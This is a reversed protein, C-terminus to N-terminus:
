PKTDDLRQSATDGADSGPASIAAQQWDARAGAADGDEYKMNGRELLADPSGPQLQLAREIDARAEAKRGLAHRASARLVFLDARTTYVGLAATLDADAGKWDHNLARAQARDTLIDPDNISYSLAHTFSVAANDGKGALLWANGAQDMIQARMVVDGAAPERGIDDLRAAAEPYRKLGVLALAACHGAPAGGTDKQWATAADYALRPNRDALALCRDYRGKGPLTPDDLPSGAAWASSVLLLAALPAFVIKHM